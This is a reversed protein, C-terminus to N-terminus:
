RKRENMKTRVDYGSIRSLSFSLSLSLVNSFAGLVSYNILKERKGVRGRRRSLKVRYARVSYREEGQICFPPPSPPFLVRCPEKALPPTCDQKKRRPLKGQASSFYMSSAAIQWIFIGTYNQTIITTEVIDRPLLDPRTQEDAYVAFLM